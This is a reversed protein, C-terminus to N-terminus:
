IGRLDGVEQIRHEENKRVCESGGYDQLSDYKSNQESDESHQTFRYHHQQVQLESRGFYSSATGPVLPM